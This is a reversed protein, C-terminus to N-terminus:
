FITFRLLIITFIIVAKVALIVSIVTCRTTRTVMSTNVVTARPQPYQQVMQPQQYQRYNDVPVMTTRYPYTSSIYPPQVSQDYEYPPCPDRHPQTVVQMAPQGFSQGDGSSSSTVPMKINGAEAASYSPAQTSEYGAGTAYENAAESNYDSTTLQLKDDSM